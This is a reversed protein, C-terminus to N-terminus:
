SLLILSKKITFSGLGVLYVQTSSLCLNIKTGKQDSGNCNCREMIIQDDMVYTQESKLCVQM